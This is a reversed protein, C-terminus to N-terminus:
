RRFYSELDDKIAVQFEQYSSLRQKIVKDRRKSNDYGALWGGFFSNGRQSVSIREYILEEKISHYLDFSQAYLHENFLITKQDLDKIPLGFGFKPEDLLIQRLTSALLEEFIYKKKSNKFLIGIEEWIQYRSGVTSPNIESSSLLESARVILDSHSAFYSSDIKLLEFISYKGKKLRRNSLHYRFKLAEALPKFIRDTLRISEDPSILEIVKRLDIARVRRGDESSAYDGGWADHLPKYKGHTLLEIEVKLM